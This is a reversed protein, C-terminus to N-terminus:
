LESEFFDNERATFVKLALKESIEKGVFVALGSEKARSRNKQNLRVAALIGCELNGSYYDSLSKLKHMHDQQVEGAKCEIIKLRLGDTILIDFEQLTNKEDLLSIELGIRIDTGQASCGEKVSLYCYEELWGGTIYKVANIPKINPLILKIPNSNRMRLEITTSGEEISCVVDNRKTSCQFPKNDGAEKSNRSVAAQITAIKKRYEWMLKTTKKRLEQVESWKGKKTIKTRSSLFFDEVKLCPELKEENIEDDIWLLKGQATDVYVGKIGLERAIQLAALFMIKTGGTFNFLVKEPPTGKLIERLKDIIPFPNFADKVVTSEVSDIVRKLDAVKDKSQETCIIIHKKADVQRAGILNPLVQNGGLHVMIEYKKM